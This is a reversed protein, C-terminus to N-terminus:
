KLTSKIMRFPLVTEGAFKWSGELVGDGRCSVELASMSLQPPSSADPLFENTVVSTFGCRAPTVPGHYRDELSGAGQRPGQFRLELAGGGSPVIECGPFQRELSACRYAGPLPFTRTQRYVVGLVAAALALAALIRWPIRWPVTREIAKSLRDADYAWRSDSIELAHRDALLQIDGPLEEKSPMAAAQVLVPLVRIGRELALRIEMRVFDAPDDLRRTGDKNAASIWRRGILAIFVTSNEIEERLRGPFVDGAVLSATDRFVRGGGFRAGLDQNLRGAEGLTDDRRYSIFIRPPRTSATEKNPEKRTLSM